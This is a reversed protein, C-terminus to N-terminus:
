GRGTATAGQRLASRVVEAREQRVNEKDIGPVNEMALGIVL